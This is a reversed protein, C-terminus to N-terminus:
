IRMPHNTTPACSTTEIMRETEREREEGEENTAARVRQMVLWHTHTHTDTLQNVAHFVM